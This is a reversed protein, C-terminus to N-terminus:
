SNTLNFSVNELNSKASDIKYQLHAIKDKYKAIEEEDLRLSEAIKDKWIREQQLAAELQEIRKKKKM